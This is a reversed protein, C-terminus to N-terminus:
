GDTHPRNTPIPTSGSRVPAYKYIWAGRVNQHQREYWAPTDAQDEGDTERAQPSPVPLPSVPGDPGLPITIERGDEPGGFLEIQVHM